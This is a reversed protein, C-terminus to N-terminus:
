ALQTYLLVPDGDRIPSVLPCNITVIDCEKVLDELSRYEAKLQKEKDEPLRSYDSYLLKSPNFGQLLAITGQKCRKQQVCQMHRKQQGCSQYPPMANLM